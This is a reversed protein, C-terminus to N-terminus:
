LDLIDDWCDCNCTIVHQIAENPKYVSTLLDTSINFIDLNQPILKTEPSGAFSGPAKAAGTIKPIGLGNVPAATITDPIDNDLVGGALGLRKANRVERM